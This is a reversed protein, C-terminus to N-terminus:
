LLGINALWTLIIMYRIITGSALADPPLADGAIRQSAYAALALLTLGLYIRLSLLRARNPFTAAPFYLHAALSFYSGVAYATLFVDVVFWGGSAYGPGAAAVALGALLWLVGVLRARTDQPASFLFLILGLAYVVLSLLGVPLMALRDEPHQSYDGAVVDFPPLQQGGREVTYQVIDGANKPTYLPRNANAIARGDIALLRDGPKLGAVDGPSGSLVQTIQLASRSSDTYDWDVGTLPTYGYWAFNYYLTLFLTVIVLGIQFGGRTVLKVISPYEISSQIKM